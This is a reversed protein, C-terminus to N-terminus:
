SSLALARTARFGERHRWRPHCQKRAPPADSSQAPDLPHRAPPTVSADVTRRSSRRLVHLNNERRVSNRSFDAFCRVPNDVAHRGVDNLDERDHMLSLQQRVLHGSTQTSTVFQSKLNLRGADPTPEILRRPRDDPRRIISELDDAGRVIESPCVWVRGLTPLAAAAATPGRQACLARM